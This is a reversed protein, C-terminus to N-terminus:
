TPEAVGGTPGVHLGRGSMEMRALDYADSAIDRLTLAARKLDEPQVASGTPGTLARVATDMQAEGGLIALRGPFDPSLLMDSRTAAMNDALSSIREKFSKSSVLAAVHAQFDKLREGKPYPGGWLKGTDGTMLSRLIEASEESPNQVFNLDAATRTMLMAMNEPGPYSVIALQLATVLDQRSPRKAVERLLEERIIQRLQGKTIKM